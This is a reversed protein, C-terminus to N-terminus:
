DGFARYYVEERASICRFYKDIRWRDVHIGGADEYAYYVFRSNVCTGQELATKIGGRARGYCYCGQRNYWSKM